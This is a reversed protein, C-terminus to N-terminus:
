RDTREQRLVYYGGSGGSGALAPLVTLGKSKSRDISADKLWNIYTTPPYYFHFRETVCNGELRGRLDVHGQSYLSGRVVSFTDVYLLRGTSPPQSTPAQLYAVTEMPRRSDLFLGGPEEHDDTRMSMVLSPDALTAQDRVTIRGQSMLLASSRAAGSIVISDAALLIVNDITASDRVYISEDAVIEIFGSLMTRGVIEVSGDVFISRVSDTSTLLVDRLELDNEVRLASRKEFYGSDDALLRLSGSVTEVSGNRRTELEREYRGLVVSDIPPVDLSDHKFLEGIHYDEHSVGEGRFRGETVGQLGTHIDGVVRTNGAVVLPNSEDALVVAVNQIDLKASGILAITTVRRHGKEGTSRVRIYPGWAGIETTITGDNPASWSSDGPRFGLEELHAMAHAIGAESLHSAILDNQRAVHRSYRSLAYTMASLFITLLIILVILVTALVSGRDDKLVSSMSM